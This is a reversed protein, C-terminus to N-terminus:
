PVAFVDGFPDALYAPGTAWLGDPGAFLVACDSPNDDYFDAVHRLLEPIDGPEFVQGLMRRSRGVYLYVPETM